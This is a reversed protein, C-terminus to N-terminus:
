RGVGELCRSRAGPLHDVAYTLFIGNARPIM